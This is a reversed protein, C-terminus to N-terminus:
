RPVRLAHYTMTIKRMMANVTFKQEVALRAAAGMASALAPSELLRLMATALASADEPEVICGSVGDQVAEANGGVRTAITPLGSAMAEILANSFGESRSPLVFMDAQRLHTTLDTVNGVFHFNRELGLEEVLAELEAYYDPELIAGAVTFTTGPFRAVVQAAARILIDHGKVRRINGITTIVAPAGPTRESVANVPDLALGNYITHVRRPPVGDVEIAHQRVQDSVAFVAHPLRRMARYALTHKRGRLIGMDRRSWIIRASSFLRAFGGAWLDSSEFFTQVISINQQKLFRRFALAGRMAFLDYTRRLPLLYLACPADAPQFSSEPHMAFTLISVRFGYSPLLSALRLVVREGGGLTKPFGDVVLLVHPQGTQAGSQLSPPGESLCHIPSNVDASAIAAVGCLRICRNSARRDHCWRGRASRPLAM